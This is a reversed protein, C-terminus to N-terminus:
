WFLEIKKISVAEAGHHNPSGQPLDDGYFQEDHKGDELKEKERIIQFVIKGIITVPGPMHQFIKGSCM